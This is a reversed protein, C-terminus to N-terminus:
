GFELLSRSLDMNCSKRRGERRMLIVGLAEGGDEIDRLKARGRGVERLSFKTSYVFNLM